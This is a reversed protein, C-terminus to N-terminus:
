ANLVLEGSIALTFPSVWPTADSSVAPALGTVYGFGSLNDAGVNITFSVLVKNNTLGFFGLKPASGDDLDTVDGFYTLPDVVINGTLSNESTTPLKLKATEDLQTWTYEEVANSLTVDTLAPVVMASGLDVPNNPDTEDQATISLVVEHTSGPAANIYAM